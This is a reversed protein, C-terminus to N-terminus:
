VRLHRDLAWYFPVALLIWRHVAGDLFLYVVLVLYAFVPPVNAFWFSECFAKREKQRRHYKALLGDILM